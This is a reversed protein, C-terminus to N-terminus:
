LRAIAIKDVVHSPMRAKVRESGLEFLVNNWGQLSFIIYLHPVTNVIPLLSHIAVNKM